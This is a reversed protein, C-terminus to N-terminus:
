DIRQVWSYPDHLIGRQIGILKQRLQQAVPGLKGDGISFEGVEHRVHSINTIVAATGCAFVEKLRGSVADREWEEFSYGREETKFGADKALILISSRTIGPLIAGNLPPTILANNDLSFFINMGGIEEVQHRKIIDLFVVQDCGKERALAQAKLSAAYNGGCKATATGGPVARSLYKEVWLIISEGGGKFYSGVPSAIVCFIYEKAPRVGLFAEKAFMFPRLYLSADEGDPIWEKDIKVLEKIANLFLEEPIVPMAMRQASRSFRRANQEPRFLLLRGDKARYAKLGEFIEQAYHLVASAPDLQFPKRETIQANHWGRTESWLILAMHDSFVKGFGPNELLKEREKEKTLSSCPYIKLSSVVAM